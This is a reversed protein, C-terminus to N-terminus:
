KIEKIVKIAVGQIIIESPFIKKEQKSYNRNEALLYPTGDKDEKYRKITTGSETLAAVVQGDRASSVKKILVYDGSSIGVDLMSDGSAQLLFCEGDIWEEPLALYGLLEERNDEPKGCTVIGMVPTRHSKTVGTGYTKVALTGRGQYEIVGRDRLALLYRYCVSSTMGMYQMISNFSPPIGNTEYYKKEIFETMKQIHSENLKKITDDGM